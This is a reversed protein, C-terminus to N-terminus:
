ETEPQWHWQIINYILQYSLEGVLNQRFGGVRPTSFRKLFDTLMMLNSFLLFASTQVLRTCNQVGLFPSSNQFDLNTEPETNTPPTGGRRFDADKM